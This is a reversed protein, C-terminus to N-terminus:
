APMMLVSIFFGGEKVTELSYETGFLMDLRDRLNKLGTRSSNEGGRRQKEYNKNIVKFLFKNDKRM